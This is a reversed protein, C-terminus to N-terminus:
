SLEHRELERGWSGTDGPYVGLPARTELVDRSRLGHRRSKGGGDRQEEFEGNVGRSKAGTGVGLPREFRLFRTRLAGRFWRRRGREGISTWDGM